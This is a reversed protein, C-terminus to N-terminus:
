KQGGLIHERCKKGSRYTNGDVTEIVCGENLTQAVPGLRYKFSTLKKMDQARVIVETDYVCRYFEGAQNCQLSLISVFILTNM